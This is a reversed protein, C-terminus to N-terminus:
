KKDLKTKAATWDSAEMKNKFEDFTGKCNTTIWSGILNKGDGSFYAKCLTDESFGQAILKSVCAEQNPYSHTPTYGAANMAKITLYETAGENFQDGMDGRFSSHTNNHLMEHAVTDISVCALNIYNINNSAFGELNGYKPVVYTTWEYQAANNDNWAKEFDAQALLKVQGKDITEKYKDKGGYAAQLAAQSQTQDLYERTGSKQPDGQTGKASSAERSQGKASQGGSQATASSTDTAPSPEATSTTTEKQVMSSKSNAM